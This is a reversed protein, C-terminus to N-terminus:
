LERELFKIFNRRNVAYDSKYDLKNIFDQEELEKNEIYHQKAINWFDSPFLFYPLLLDREGKTLSLRGDYSELINMAKETSWNTRRVVRMIVAGLDHIALDVACSDLDTLHLRGDFGHIINHHMFDNHILTGARRKQEILQVYESAALLMVSEMAEKLYCDACSLFIMDLKDKQHKAILREKIGQLQSVMEKFNRHWRGLYQRGEPVTEPKFGMSAKHFEALLEAASKLDSPNEYDTERGDKVETLYYRDGKWSLFMDDGNQPIIKHISIEGKVSIHNCAEQIFKMEEEPFRLKKLYFMGKDTEIQFMSRVPIIQKISLGMSRFMQADLSYGALLEKEWHRNDTIFMEQQM